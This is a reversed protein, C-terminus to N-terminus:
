CKWLIYRSFNVLEVLEYSNYFATANCITPPYILPEDFITGRFIFYYHTLVLYTDFPFPM